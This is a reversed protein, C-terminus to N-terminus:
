TEPTNWWRRPYSVSNILPCPVIERVATDLTAVLATMSNRLSILMTDYRTYPHPYSPPRSSHAINYPDMKVHACVYRLHVVGTPLFSATRDIVNKDNVSDTYEDEAALLKASDPLSRVQSSHQPIINGSSSNVTKNPVTLTAFMPMNPSPFCASSFLVDIYRPSGHSPPFMVGKMIQEGDRLSTGVSVIFCGDVTVDDDACARATTMIPYFSNLVCGGEGCALFRTSTDWDSNVCVSVVHYLRTIIWVRTPFKLQHSKLVLVTEHNDNVYWAAHAKLQVADHEPMAEIFPEPNYVFHEIYSDDTLVDPPEPSMDVAACDVDNYVLTM